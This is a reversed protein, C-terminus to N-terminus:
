APAVQCEVQMVIYPNEYEIIGAFISVERAWLRVM